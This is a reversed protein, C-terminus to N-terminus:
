SNQMLAYSVMNLGLRSFGMDVKNKVM